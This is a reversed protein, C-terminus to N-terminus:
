IHHFHYCLSQSFSWLWIDRDHRQHLLSRFSNISRDNNNDQVLIFSSLPYIDNTQTASLHACKHVKYRRHLDAGLIRLKRVETETIRKKNPIYHGNIPPDCCTNKAGQKSYYSKIDCYINLTAMSAKISLLM